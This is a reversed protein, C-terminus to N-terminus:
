CGRDTRWSSLEDSDFVNINADESGWHMLVCDGGGNANHYWAAHTGTRNEWSDMKDRDSSPVNRIGGGPLRPSDLLGVFNNNAYICSKRILDPCYNPNGAQAAEPAVSLASAVLGLVAVSVVYPKRVTM